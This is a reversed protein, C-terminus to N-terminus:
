EKIAELINFFREGEGNQKDPFVRYDVFDYYLGKQRELFCQTFYEEDFFDNFSEINNQIGYFQIIYEQMAKNFREEPVILYNMFIAKDFAKRISKCKRYEEEIIDPFVRKLEQNAAFKKLKNQFYAPTAIIEIEGKEGKSLLVTSAPFRGDYNFWDIAKQNDEKVVWMYM